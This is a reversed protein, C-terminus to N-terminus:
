ILPPVDDDDLEVQVKKAHHQLNRQKVAEQEMERKAELTVSRRASLERLGGTLSPTHHQEKVTEDNKQKGDSQAVKGDWGSSAAAYRGATGQKGKGRVVVVQEEERKAEELGADEEVGDRQEVVGTEEKRVVPMKVVLSGDSVVRKVSVGDVAVEEGTHLVMLQGRVDVQVWWPQVDVRLVSTDMHRPVEVRLVVCRTCTSTSATLTFPYRGVNRQSPLNAASYQTPDLFTNLKQKAETFLDTSPAFQASSAAADAQQKAEVALQEEYMRVRLAPTFRTDRDTTAETNSDGDAERQKEDKDNTNYKHEREAEEKADKEIDYQLEIALRHRDRQAQLRESRTIDTGDLRELGALGGVVWPRYGSWTTCPNGTMYLERLMVCDTLAAISSTLEAIRIHNLTLDLKALKELAALHPAPLTTVNNLTLNLYTLSKLRHLQRFTPHSPLLNNHLYLIRLNPCASSLIPTLQSLNLQHLSLEQLSLLTDNHHEAKKRIIDLTLTAM